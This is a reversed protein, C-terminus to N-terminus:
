WPLYKITYDNVNAIGTKGVITFTYENVGESPSPVDCERIKCGSLIFAMDRSGATANVAYIMNFETGNKYYNNYLSGAMNSIMDMTLTVEYERNGIVHPGAYRSGNLYHVAELNNAVRLNAEKVGDLTTGSPLHIVIESYLFPQLGSVGGAVGPGSCDFTPITGSSWSSYQGIYSLECEVLENSAANISLENAQCGVFNRIFHDGAQTGQKADVVEFSVWPTLTGSGLTQAQDNDMAKITHTYPSPSGGDACSGMVFFLMKWDQPHYTITGDIDIPGNATTTFDRTGGATRIEIVGM